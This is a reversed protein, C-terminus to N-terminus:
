LLLHVINIIYHYLNKGWSRKLLYQDRFRRLTIVEPSDYDGYVATAIYCGESKSDQKFQKIFRNYYGNLKNRDFQMSKVGDIICKELYYITYRTAEYLVKKEDTTLEDIRNELMKRKGSDYTNAYDYQSNQELFPEVDNEEIIKFMDKIMVIEDNNYISNNYSNQNVATYSSNNLIEKRKKDFINILAYGVTEGFSELLGGKSKCDFIFQTCLLGFSDWEDLSLDGPNNDKLKKAIIDFTNVAKIFLENMEKNAKLEYPLTDNEIARKYGNNVKSSLMDVVTSVTEMEKETFKSM